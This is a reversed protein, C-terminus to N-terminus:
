AGGYKEIYLGCAILKTACSTLLAGTHTHISEDSLVNAAQIATFSEELLIRQQPDTANAEPITMKFLKADFM